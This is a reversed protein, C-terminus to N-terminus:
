FHRAYQGHYLNRAETAVLDAFEVDDFSGCYKRKGHVSLSVVWNRKWESKKTPAQLYVNKYPSRSSTAHKRNLCNEQQTVQRLNEIKNNFCDGDIHDITKPQNGHQHLFIVRHLYYSKSCINIRLYRKNKTKNCVAVKGTSKRILQGDQYDFTERLYEQTLM